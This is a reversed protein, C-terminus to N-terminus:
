GKVRRECRWQEPKNERDCWNGFGNKELVKISAPNDKRVFAFLSDFGAEHALSILETLANSMVGRHHESCWYGVEAQSRDASKIDISATILGAPDNLLFVFHTQEQWGKAAWHLFNQADSPKYPRGGFRENFVFEFLSPQNCITAVNSIQEPSPLIQSAPVMLYQLGTIRNIVTREKPTWPNGQKHSPAPNM